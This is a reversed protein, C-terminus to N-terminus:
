TMSYRSRLNWKGASRVHRIMMSPQHMIRHMHTHMFVAAQHWRQAHRMRMGCSGPAVATRPMHAHAHECSDPAVATRPMHEHAHDCSSPAVATRPAHERAHEHTPMPMIDDQQQSQALQTAQTQTSARTSVRKDASEETSSEELRAAADMAAAEHPSPAHVRARSARTVMAFLGAPVQNEEEQELDMTGELTAHVQTDTPASRMCTDFLGGPITHREHGMLKVQQPHSKHDIRICAKHRRTGPILYPCDFNCQPLQLDPPGGHILIHTPKRSWVRTGDYRPDACACYHTELLRYKGSAIMKQVQPQSQFHGVPNEITQIIGPHLEALQELTQLVRDRAADHEAVMRRQRDNMHPNPSGDELRYETPGGSTATSLTRCDPSFHILQVKELGVHWAEHVMSQLKALTLGIVDMQFYAIRHHLHKPITRLAEEKEIRDASVVVCNPDKRLAYHAVSHDGACLDAFVKSIKRMGVTKPRIADRKRKSMKKKNKPFPTSESASHMTPAVISNPMEDDDTEWEPETCPTDDM